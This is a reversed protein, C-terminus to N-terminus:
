KSGAGPRLTDTPTVATYENQIMRVLLLGPLASDALPIPSNFAKFFANMWSYHGTPCYTNPYETEVAPGSQVAVCLRCTTGRGCHRHLQLLARMEDASLSVAVSGLHLKAVVYRCCHAQQVGRNRPRSLAPVPDCLLAASDAWAVLHHALLTQQCRM